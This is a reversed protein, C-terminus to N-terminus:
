EFGPREWGLFMGELFTEPMAVGGKVGSEPLSESLLLELELEIELERELLGETLLGSAKSKRM